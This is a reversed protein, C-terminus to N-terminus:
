GAGGPLQEDLATTAVWIRDADVAVERLSEGVWQSSATSADVGIRSLTGDENAVWASGDAAAVDNPVRDIGIPVSDDIGRTRPDIRTVSATNRNLVWVADAAAAVAVPFPAEDGARAIRIEDTVARTTPDIRLVSSTRSSIAWVAGAGFAVGDLTVDVEIRDVTRTAPDVHALSRSGDTVWVRGGGAAVSTSAASSDRSKAPRLEIRASVSEYGAEVRVLVGRRGDVVWVAGEDVAVASPQMGLAVTRAIRGARADVATLAASDVTVAWVMGDDAALDTPRGILPPGVRTAGSGADIAAISNPALDLSATRAVRNGDGQETLAALTVAALLVAGSIVALLRLPPARSPVKGRRKAQAPARQRPPRPASPPALEPSHDLIMAELERLAPGPELGLESTLLTRTDRYADLAEAQRGCRYLALMLQGRLRERLPHERVLAELDGVVEAHRGLGLDADIRGEVAVLRLEELRAIEQQAFPEYALDALAPGHWLAIAETLRASARRADGSGLARLGDALTREFRQTDIDETGVCAVYGNGRTKLVGGNVSAADRGLERRLQSVYVHLSKAATAPPREGWLADILREASIVENPHLLLVALLSRRKGHGVAIPRGEDLVELPGLLRFEM